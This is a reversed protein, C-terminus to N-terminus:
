ERREGIRGLIEVSLTPALRRLRGELTADVQVRGSGDSVVFGSGVSGDVEVKVGDLSGVAGRVVGEITRACRVTTGDSGIFEIAREVESHLASQYAKTGLVSDLEGRM